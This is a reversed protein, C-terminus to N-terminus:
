FTFLSFGVDNATEEDSIAQPEKFKKLYHKVQEETLDTTGGEGDDAVILLPGAYISGNIRRNGRMGILKAEENGVVIANDDFPYTMEIYGEVESQLSQLTDEIVVEKAPEGPMIKIARIKM